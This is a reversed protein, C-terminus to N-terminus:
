ARGIQLEELQFDEREVEAYRVALKFLQAGETSGNPPLREIVQGVDVVWRVHVSDSAGATKERFFEAVRGPFIANFRRYGVHRNFELGFHVRDGDFQLFSHGTRDRKVAHIEIRSSLEEGVHINLDLLVDLM